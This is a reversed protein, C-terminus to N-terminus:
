ANHHVRTGMCVCECEGNLVASTGKSYRSQSRGHLSRISLMMLEGPLHGLGGPNPHAVGKAM